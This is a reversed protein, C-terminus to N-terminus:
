WRRYKKELVRRLADIMDSLNKSQAKDLYISLLASLKSNKVTIRDDFYFTEWKRGKIIHNSMEHWWQDHRVAWDLLKDKDDTYFWPQRNEWDKGFDRSKVLLNAFDRVAKLAFPDLVNKSTYGSSENRWSIKEFNFVFSRPLKSAEYVFKHYTANDSVDAESVAAVAALVEFVHAPNEQREGGSVAESTVLDTPNDTGLLYVHDFTTNIEYQCTELAAKVAQMDSDSQVLGADRDDPSFNKSVKFYPLMMVAKTVFRPLREKFYRGLSVMGSAGTGGFLSGCVLIHVEEQDAIESILSKLGKDMIDRAEERQLMKTMLAAGMHASKKSGSDLKDFLQFQPFLADFTSKELEKMGQYGLASSFNDNSSVPSLPMLGTRDDIVSIFLRSKETFRLNARINKYKNIANKCRIVNGNYIDPDILVPYLTGPANGSAALHIVAEVIKAGTGGIGVLVLNKGMRM